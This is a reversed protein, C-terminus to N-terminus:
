NAPSSSIGLTVDFVRRFEQVLDFSGNEAAWTITVSRFAHYLTVAIDAAAAPNAIEGALQANSITRVVTDYLYASFPFHEESKGQITIAYVQRIVNAGYQACNRSYVSMLEWLTDVNSQQLVLSHLLQEAKVGLFDTLGHLLEEKSAYHYYFTRKTIGASKCIQVVTVNEYGQEQFLSIACSRIHEKTSSSSNSSSM